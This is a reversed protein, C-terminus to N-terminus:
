PHIHGDLFPRSKPEEPTSFADRFRTEPHWPIGPLFKLVPDHCNSRAITGRWQLRSEGPDSDNQIWGFQVTSTPRETPRESTKTALLTVVMKLGSWTCGAAATITLIGQSPGLYPSGWMQISVSYGDGGTTETIPFTSRFFAHGAFIVPFRDILM